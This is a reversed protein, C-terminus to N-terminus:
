MNEMWSPLEYSFTTKANGYNPILEKNVLELIRPFVEPAEAQIEHYQMAEDLRQLFQDIEILREDLCLTIDKKDNARNVRSQFFAFIKSICVDVPDLRSIKIQKLNQFFHFSPKPPLRPITKDSVIDLFLGHRYLGPSRRGFEDTLFQIIETGRPTDILDTKLVDIDKTGREPLGAMALAAFGIIKFLLEHNPFQKSLENDIDTFFNNYIETM